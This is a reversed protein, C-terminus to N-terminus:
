LDNWECINTWTIKGETNKTPVQGINASNFGTIELDQMTSNITLSQEDLKLGDPNTVIFYGDFPSCSYFTIDGNDAVKYECLVNEGNEYFEVELKNTQGQKHVSSLITISFNPSVGLFDGKVFTHSYSYKIQNGGIITINDAVGTGITLFEDGNYFYFKSTEIVYYFKNTLPVFLDLREEDTALLIVDSYKQLSLSDRSIYVELTDQCIYIEGGNNAQTPLTSRNGVYFKVQSM